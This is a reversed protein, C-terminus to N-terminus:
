ISFFTKDVKGLWMSIHKQHRIIHKLPCPICKVCKFHDVVLLQTSKELFNGFHSGGSLIFVLFAKDVKRFWM